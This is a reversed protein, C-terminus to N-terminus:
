RMWGDLARQAAEYAPTLFGRYLGEESDSFPTVGLADCRAVARAGAGDGVM